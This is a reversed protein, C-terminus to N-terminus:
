TWYKSGFSRNWGGTNDKVWCWHSLSIVWIRQTRRGLRCILRFVARDIINPGSSYPPKARGSRYTVWPVSLNRSKRPWKRKCSQVPWRMWISKIYRWSRVPQPEKKMFKSAICKLHTSSPHSEEKHCNVELYWRDMMYGCWHSGGLGLSDSWYRISIKARCRRDTETIAVRLRHRRKRCTKVTLSIAVTSPVRMVISAFCPIRDLTRGLRRIHGAWPLGVGWSNDM